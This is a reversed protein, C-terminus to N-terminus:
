PEAVLVGEGIPEAQAGAVDANGVVGPGPSLAASQTHTPSAAQNKSAHPPHM